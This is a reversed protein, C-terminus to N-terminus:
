ETGSLIKALIANALKRSDVNYTGAAIAEKLAAVKEARVEPTANIIQQALEVLRTTEPTQDVGEPLGTEPPLRASGDQRRPPRPSGPPQHENNDM